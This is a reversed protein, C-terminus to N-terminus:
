WDCRRQYSTKRKNHALSSTLAAQKFSRHYRCSEHTRSRHLHEYVSKLNSMQRTNILIWASFSACSMSLIDSFTHLCHLFIHTRITDELCMNFTMIVRVVRSAVKLSFSIVCSSLHRYRSVLTLSFLESEKLFPARYYRTMLISNEVTSIQSCRCYFCVTQTNLSFESRISTAYALEPFVLPSCVRPFLVRPSGSM